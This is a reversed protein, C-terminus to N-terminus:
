TLNVSQRTITAYGVFTMVIRVEQKQKFSFFFGTQCNFAIAM